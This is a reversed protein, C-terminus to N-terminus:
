ADARRWTKVPLPTDCIFDVWACLKDTRQGNEILGQGALWAKVGEAAQSNWINKPINAGPENTQAYEIAITIHLPSVGM